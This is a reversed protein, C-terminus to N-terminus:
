KAYSDNFLDMSVSLLVVEKLIDDVKEKIEDAFKLRKLSCDEQLM